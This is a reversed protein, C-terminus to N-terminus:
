EESPLSPAVSRTHPARQSLSSPPHPLLTTIGVEGSLGNVSHAIVGLPAVQLLTQLPRQTLGPPSSLDDGWGREDYQPLGDGGRVRHVGTITTNVLLLVELGEVRIWPVTTVGPHFPQKM